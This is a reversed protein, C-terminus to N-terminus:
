TYIDSIVFQLAQRRLLSKKQQKIRKIRKARKAGLYLPSKKQKLFNRRKRLM